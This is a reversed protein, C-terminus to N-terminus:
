HKCELGFQRYDEENVFNLLRGARNRFHSSNFVGLLGSVQGMFDRPLAMAIELFHTRLSVKISIGQPMSIVVTNTNETMMIVQDTVYAQNQNPIVVGSGNVIIPADGFVLDRKVGGIYFKLEDNEATVQIPMALGKKVVISTVVSSTNNRSFAQLRVQVILGQTQFLIYDGTGIFTFVTGNM